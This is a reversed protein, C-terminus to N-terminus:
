IPPVTKCQKITDYTNEAAIQRIVNLEKQKQNNLLPYQNIRNYLFSFAAVKHEAPHCSTSHMVTSSSTPKRYVSFIFRKLKRVVTIDLYNIEKDSEKELAFQLSKPTNSFESLVGDINTRTEDYIADNMAYWM